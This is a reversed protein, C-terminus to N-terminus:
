NLAIGAHVAPATGLVAIGLRGGILVGIIAFIGFQVPGNRRLLEVCELRHKNGIRYLELSGETTKAYPRETTM